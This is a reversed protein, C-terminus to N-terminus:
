ACDKLTGLLRLASEAKLCLEQWERLPQSQAVIGAGVQLEARDATLWVQRIGVALDLGQGFIELPQGAIDVGLAGCYPGRWRKELRAIVQTAQIKPCGTVSAPPLTARLLEQRDAPNRLKGHVESELHWLTAYPTPECLAKVQVSGFHSVRQLDNRAMDVIMTNEAREKESTQLQHAAQQDAQGAARKATGKIPRTQVHDGQVRLFQEMSGSLLTFEPAKWVMAYPVAQVALIAALQETITRPHLFPLQAAVSLNVQYIEGARICELAQEVQALFMERQNLLTEPLDLPPQAQMSPLELPQLDRAHFAILDVDALLSHNTQPPLDELAAGLDYGLYGAVSLGADHWQQWQRLANDANQRADNQTMQQCLRDVIARNKLGIAQHPGLALWRRPGQGALGFAFDDPQTTPQTQRSMIVFSGLVPPGHYVRPLPTM